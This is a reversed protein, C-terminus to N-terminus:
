MRIPEGARSRICTSTFPKTALYPSVPGVYIVWPRYGTLCCTLTLDPMRGCHSAQGPAPRAPIMREKGRWEEFRRQWAVEAAQTAVWSGIPVLFGFGGVAIKALVNM